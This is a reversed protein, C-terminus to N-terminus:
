AEASIGKPVSGFHRKLALAGIATVRLARTRKGRVVWESTLARRYLRAGLAGGLHPRRETWDLCEFALRRRGEANTDVGLREFLRVGAASLALDARIPNSVIIAGSGKLSDLIAVGVKGALHDYCTRAIAISSRLPASRKPGGTASMLTEVLQAVWPARLEYVVHRGKRRTLVLKRRRLLALHNSVKPQPERAHAGLEAVAAPGELLRHLIALRLPDGLARALEAAAISSEIGRSM